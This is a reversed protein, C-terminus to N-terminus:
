LYDVWGRYRQNNGRLIEFFKKQLKKTITGPVIGGIKKGDIERIPTVEAATGTFFAEDSVYLFGRTIETEKVEYGLDRSIKIISDRTIGPLISANLPPTFIKEDKILFINEGSGESVFGRFDLMITEDYGQNLAEVVGLISNLYQGTAKANSPLANPSIRQYSSTKIKVGRELCEEGLYKGWYWAAIAVDVPCNLPNVSMEGYGRYVIPRIYCEKLKNIKILEKTSTCLEDLSYPIDMFYIKASDKLRQMHDKLRFIAPGKKTDYCRIGEFVGSGYHLAHTLVHVKAAKWDVFKGNMWIKKSEKM